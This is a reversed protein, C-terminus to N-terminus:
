TIIRKRPDVAAWGIGGALTLAAALVFSMTWGFRAAIIPTISTACAGGIQGGMNIIASVVSTNEGAIDAAVAWFGSQSIYLVGAGLALVLAATQAQHARPGILLLIATLVLAVGPVVTRGIRLGVRATIRDSVFGGFLCGLTMAIFPIMTYLASAKLNLGRAQALYIFFWGFYIWAVYVFSFYSLTLTIVQPSGLIASWPVFHSRARSERPERSTVILDRESHGIRAHQEPTDRATVYWIAAAALGIGASIWFSARWGLHLIILTVFYPTLGSGMGVGGFIIGNAKGREAIPFWREVFQSAAPYMTAEGAGLAFRVAILLPVAYRFGPPLAATLATFAAWWVGAFLLVRRPGLRRALIGAPVQFAAYAVLFASFIWGLRTNSIGFERGIQLGAVSINTRDLFAVASLVGLWLVLLYRLPFARGNGVLSRNEEQVNELAAQDTRTM